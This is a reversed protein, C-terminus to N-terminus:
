LFYGLARQSDEPKEDMDASSTLGSVATCPSLVAFLACRCIGESMCLIASNEKQLRAEFVKM